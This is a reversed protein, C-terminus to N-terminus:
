ISEANNWMNKYFEIKLKPKQSPMILAPAREAFNNFSQSLIWVETSDVIVLRDHLEKHPAVRLETPRTGGNQGVWRNFAPKLIDRKRNKNSALLKAHVRELIAPMFDTFIKEDLYPDIILIEKTAKGFVKTIATFADFGKGAGIFNEQSLDPSKIKAAREEADREETVKIEMISEVGLLIARINFMTNKRADWFLDHPTFVQLLNIQHRLKNFDALEGSEKVFACAQGLWKQEIIGQHNQALNPITTILERLKLLITKPTM